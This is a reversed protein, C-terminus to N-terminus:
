VISVLKRVHQLALSDANEASCSDATYPPVITVENMVIINEKEWKVQDISYVALLFSL